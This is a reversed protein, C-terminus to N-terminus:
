LQSYIEELINAYVKEVAGRRINGKEKTRPLSGSPVIVVRSPSDIKEPAYPATSVAATRKLIESKLQSPDVI